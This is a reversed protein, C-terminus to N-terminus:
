SANRVLDRAIPRQDPAAPENLFAYLAAFDQDAYGERMALRYIEKAVNAVPMPVGAEYGSISALHLDKQIWRLSFDPTYDEHEIKARKLSIMPAVMPGGILTDFLIQRSVGLAQGLAAGEAFAAMALAGLLNNVMKLASGLGPGGVHVIRMGMCALLPRCVELDTADGGVLFMLEGRAAAEKSGTVPADLYRVRKAAAQEEMRRAFSPNVTGCNVWIAGLRLASLFGTAGFAADGVAEPHALMTFLVDAEAAVAAPSEGWTAGARLLSEAKDRTRNFVVLEFHHARLNAAMRSGMIGLGIFGVKLGM